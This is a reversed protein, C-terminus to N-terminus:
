SRPCPTGRKWSPIPNGDVMAAFLPDTLPVDGPHHRLHLVQVTKLCEDRM